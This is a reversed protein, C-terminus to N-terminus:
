RGHGGLPHFTSDLVCVRGGVWRHHCADACSSLWFLVDCGPGSCPTFAHSLVEDVGLVLQSTIREALRERTAADIRRKSRLVDLVDRLVVKRADCRVCDDM